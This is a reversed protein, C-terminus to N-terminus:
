IELAERMTPVDIYAEIGGQRRKANLCGGRTRRVKERHSFIQGVCARHDRCPWGRRRHLTRHEGEGRYGGCAKGLLKSGRTVKTNAVPPRDTVCIECGPHVLEFVTQMDLQEFARYLSRVVNVDEQSM